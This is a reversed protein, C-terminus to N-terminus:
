IYLYFILLIAEGISLSLSKTMNHANLLVGLLAILPKIQTITMEYRPLLYTGRFRTCREQSLSLSLSLSLSIPLYPSLSLSLSLSLTHSLYHSIYIYPSDIHRTRVHAWRERGAQALSLSLSIIVYVCMCICMVKVAAMSTAYYVMVMVGSVLAYQYHEPSLCTVAPDGVM